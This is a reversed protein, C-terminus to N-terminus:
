THHHSQSPPVGQLQIPRFPASPAPKPYKHLAPKPLSATFKFTITTQDAIPREEPLQLKEGALYDFFDYLTPEPLLLESAEEFISRRM